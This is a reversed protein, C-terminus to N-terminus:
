GLTLGLADAVKRCDDMMHRFAPLTLAQFGDSLARDPEPHVEVMLGDAGAAVAARAM